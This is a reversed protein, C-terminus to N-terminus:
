YETLYNISDQTTFTVPTIRGTVHRKLNLLWYLPIHLPFLLGLFHFLVGVPLFGRRPLPDEWCLTM